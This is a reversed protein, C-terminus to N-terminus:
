VIFKTEISLINAGEEILMNCGKSTKSFVSGPLAYVEKSLELAIEVTVLSGSKEHAEIVLIKESLAAILRNRMLFQWPQPKNNPPYESIILHEKKIKNFLQNNNKPYVNNLGGGLIAITKLNNEISLFHSLQDIGKAYGSVVTYGKINKFIESLSKEGYITNNRSGVVGIKNENLLHINGYYYIVLPPNPLIKFEDPYEKCYLTIAGVNLNKCYKLASEDQINTLKPDKLLLNMKEKYTKSFSDLYIIKEKIM